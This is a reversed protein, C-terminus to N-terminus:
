KVTVNDFTATMAPYTGTLNLGVAFTVSPPAPLALAADEAIPTDNLSVKVRGNTADFTVEFVVHVKDGGCLLGAPHHVDAVLFDCGNRGIEIFATVASNPPTFQFLNVHNTPAAAGFASRDGVFRVDYELRMQKSPPTAVTKELKVEAAETGAATRAVLASDEITLTAAGATPVLIDWPGKPTSRGEFDDCFLVGPGLCTSSPADKISGADNLDPAGDPIPATMDSGADKPPEGVYGDFSTALSCHVALTALGFALGRPAM